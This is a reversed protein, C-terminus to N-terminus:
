GVGQEQQKKLLARKEMMSAGLGADDDGQNEIVVPPAAEAFHDGHPLSKGPEVGTLVEASSKTPESLSQEGEFNQSQLDEGTAGLEIDGPENIASIFKEELSKDETSEVGVPAHGVEHPNLPSPLASREDSDQEMSADEFLSPTGRPIYFEEEVEETKLQEPSYAFSQLQLEAEDQESTPLYDLNAAIRNVHLRRKDPDMPLNGLNLELTIKDYDALCKDHENM